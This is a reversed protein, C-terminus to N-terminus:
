DTISGRARQDRLAALHGASCLRADDFTVRGAEREGGGGIRGASRM